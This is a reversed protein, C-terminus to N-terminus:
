SAPVQRMLDSLWLPLLRVVVFLPTRSMRNTKNRDFIIKRMQVPQQIGLNVHSECCPCALLNFSLQERSGNEVRLDRVSSQCDLVNTLSENQTFMM